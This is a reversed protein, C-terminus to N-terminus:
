CHPVDHGHWQWAKPLAPAVMAVRLVSSCIRATSDEPLRRLARLRAARRKLFQALHGALPALNISPVALGASAQRSCTNTHSRTLTKHMPTPAGTRSTHSAPQKIRRRHWATAQEHDGIQEDFRRCVEETLIPYVCTAAQKLNVTDM